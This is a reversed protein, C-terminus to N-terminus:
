IFFKWVLFWCFVYGVRFFSDRLRSCRFRGGLRGLVSEVARFFAIFVFVRLCRLFGEFGFFLRSFWFNEWIGFEISTFNYFFFGSKGMLCFRFVVGNGLFSIVFFYEVFVRAMVKGFVFSFFFCVGEFDGLICFGFRGRM